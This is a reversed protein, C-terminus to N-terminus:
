QSLPKGANDKSVIKPIHRGDSEFMFSLRGSKGYDAPTATASYRKKDDSIRVAYNYGTSEANRVDDPLLSEGVLTPVDALSGHIALYAIQAKSIRELMSRAEDEHTEIRLRYFYNKGEKRIIQEAAEDVTLIVWVGNQQRLRIQQVAPKGTEEDPINATVTATDGSVIEGNIQLEAPVGAAMSELDVQFERLEADTLGEIAPRLNTLFIAERFRKNRLSKYFARVTDAPSNAQIEITPGGNSAQKETAAAAKEPAAVSSEAACGALLFISILATCFLFSPKVFGRVM